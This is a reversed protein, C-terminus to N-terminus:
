AGAVAAAGPAVESPVEDIPTKVILKRIESVPVILLGVLLCVVWQDLDLNTTDLIRRFLGFETM